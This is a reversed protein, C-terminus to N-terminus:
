ARNNKREPEPSLDTLENRMIRVQQPADIGLRVTGRGIHVATVLIRVPEGTLRAEELLAELTQENLVVRIAQDEHRTLVLM